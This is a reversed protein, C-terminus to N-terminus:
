ELVTGNTEVAEFQLFQMNDTYVPSRMELTKGKYKATQIDSADTKRITILYTVTPKQGTMTEEINARKAEVCAWVTRVPVIQRILNHEDDFTSITKCLTIRHRLDNVTYAKM